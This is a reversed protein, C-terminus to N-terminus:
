QFSTTNSFIYLLYGIERKGILFNEIVQLIQRIYWGTLPESFPANAKIEDFLEGEQCYESIINYENKLNYFDTIKLINPHDLKRLINIENM